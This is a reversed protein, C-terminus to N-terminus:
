LRDEAIQQQLNERIIRGDAPKQPLDTSRKKDNKDQLTEELMSQAMMSGFDIPILPRNELRDCSKSCHQQRMNSM